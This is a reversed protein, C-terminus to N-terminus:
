DHICVNRLICVQTGYSQPEPRRRVTDTSQFSESHGEVPPRTVQQDISGIRTLPHRSDTPSASTSMQGPSQAADRDSGPTNEQGTSM